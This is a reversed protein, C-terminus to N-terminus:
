PNREAVRIFDQITHTNTKGLDLEPRMKDSAKQFEPFNASLAEYVSQSCIVKENEIPAQFPQM